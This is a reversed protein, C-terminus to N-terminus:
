GATAPATEQKAAPAAQAAPTAAPAAQATPAPQAAPTAPAKPKRAVPKKAAKKKDKTLSMVEGIVKAQLGPNKEITTHKIDERGGMSVNQLTGTFGSGKYVRNDGNPIYYNVVKGVNKGVYGPETPDFMVVYSVKVGRAGLYSAMKSADNAGLSHGMIIVPYSVKGAKNRAVINDALEQWKTYSTSMAYVGARNIRVAMVDMGRSFIDMLGRMLYVEGTRTPAVKPTDIAKLEADAPAASQATGASTSSGTSSCGSLALGGALAAISLTRLIATNRM